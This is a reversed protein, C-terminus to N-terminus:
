EVFYMDLKGKGKAHIQGRPICTYNGKILNYTTESINIKGEEGNTEIRSATNITDGFLDYAFKKKGVVGAVVPGSHIGVRMNWQIKSKRNRENLFSIMRQAAGVCKLAHDSNEEPLGCAAMYADGITEIKEIQFEDMIDDFRGFIDNLEEVLKVAPISAVLATFDKFDTFLITVNDYKKTTAKGTEKLEDAVSKPLINLLLRDSKQQEEKIIQRYIFLGREKNESLRSVIMAFVIIAWIWFSMLVLDSTGIAEYTIIFYQYFILPPLAIAVMSAQRIQYLYLGFFALMILGILAPYEFGPLTFSMFILQAGIIFNLLAVSILNYGKYWTKYSTFIFFPFILLSPIGLVLCFVKFYEPYIFYIIAIGIVELIISQPVGTRVAKALFEDHEVRFKIELDQDKFRLSYKYQETNM